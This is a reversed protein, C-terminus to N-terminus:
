VEVVQGTSQEVLRVTKRGKLEPFMKRDEVTVDFGFEENTNRDALGNLGADWYYPVYVACGEFKGPNKVAEECDERTM